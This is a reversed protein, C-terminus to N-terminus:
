PLVEVSTASTGADRLFAVQDDSLGAVTAALQEEDTLVRTGGVDVWRIPSRAVTGDRLVVAVAAQVGDPVSRFGDSVDAEGGSVAGGTSETREEGDELWVVVFAAGSAEEESFNSFM